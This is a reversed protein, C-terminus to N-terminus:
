AVARKVDEWPSSRAHLLLLGAKRLLPDTDHGLAYNPTFNSPKLTSVVISFYVPWSGLILLILFVNWSQFTSFQLIFMNISYRTLPSDSLCGSSASSPIACGALLMVRLL